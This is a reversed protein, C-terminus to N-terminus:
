RWCRRVEIEGGVGVSVSGTGAPKSASVAAAKTQSAAM